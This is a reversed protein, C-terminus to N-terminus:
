RGKIWHYRENVRKTKYEHFRRKILTKEVGCKEAIQEMTLGQLYFERLRFPSLNRIQEATLDKM